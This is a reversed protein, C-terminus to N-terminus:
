GRSHRRSRRPSMPSLRLLPKLGRQSSATLLHRDNHHGGPLGTTTEHELAIRADPSELLKVAVRDVRHDPPQALRLSQKQITGRRQPSCSVANPCPARLLSTAQRALAVSRSHVLLLQRTTRIAAGAPHRAAYSQSFLKPSGAAVWPTSKTSAAM